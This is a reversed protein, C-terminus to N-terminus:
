TEFLEPHIARVMQELGDIMRPGAITILEEPVARIVDGQVAATENWGARAKISEPTIGALGSMAGESIVIVEPNATIVVEASTTVYQSGFGAFLNVGGAMAILDNVFSTGGYSGYGASSVYYEVYVRPKVANKTLDEVAEARSSMDATLANAANVEGTLKGVIVIDDLVGEFGLPSLVVVKLGLADLQYTVPDQYGGKVLVLDPTLEVVAEISVKSFSGLSTVNGDAIKEQIEVPYRSYTVSGVVRGGLGLGFLIETCSPALSVIREPAATVSVTRGSDDVVSVPFLPVPSPSPSVSPVPSPSPSASPLPSPSPSPTSVVASSSPSASPSVSPSPSPSASFVSGVYRSVVVGSVVLVVVLMACVIVVYQKNM